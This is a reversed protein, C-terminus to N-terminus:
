ESIGADRRFQKAVLDLMYRCEEMQEERLVKAMKKETSASIRRIGRNTQKELESGGFERRQRVYMSRLAEYHDHLLRDFAEQQEADIDMRAISAAIREEYAQASVAALLCLLVGALAIRVSPTRPAIM